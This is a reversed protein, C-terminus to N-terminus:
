NVSRELLAEYIQQRQTRTLDKSRTCVNTNAHGDEDMYIAYEHMDEEM